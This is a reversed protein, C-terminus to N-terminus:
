RGLILAQAEVEAKLAPAFGLAFAVEALLFLPGILLGRLDDLFAPKRGEFVHGVAQFIWGVVFLGLSWGLWVGLPRAAVALGIAWVAVVVPVMAVAARPTIWWYFGLAALAIVTAASAWGEGIRATLAAIAIMIMPIGVFHTAVNRRDRHHAAYFGLHRVVPTVVVERFPADDGGFRVM